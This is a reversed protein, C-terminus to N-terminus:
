VSGRVGLIFLTVGFLPVAAPPVLIAITKSFASSVAANLTSISLM